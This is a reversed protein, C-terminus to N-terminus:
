TWNDFTVRSSQPDGDNIEIHNKPQSIESSKANVTMIDNGKNTKLDEVQGRKSKVRSDSSNSVNKNM